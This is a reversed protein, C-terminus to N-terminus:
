CIPFLSRELLNEKIAGNKNVFVTHDLCVLLSVRMCCTESTHRCGEPASLRIRSLLRVSKLKGANTENNLLTRLSTSDFLLKKSHTQVWHEALTNTLFEIM